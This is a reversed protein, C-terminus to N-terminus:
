SKFWFEDYVPQHGTIVKAAILSEEAQIKAAELSDSVGDSIINSQNYTYTCWGYHGNKLTHPEVIAIYVYASDRPDRLIITGDKYEPSPANAWTFEKNNLMKLSGVSVM